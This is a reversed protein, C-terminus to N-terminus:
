LARQKRAKGAFSQLFDIDHSLSEITMGCVYGAATRWSENLRGDSGPGPGIRFCYVQVVEGLKGQEMWEWLRKYGRRFRQTFGVMFCVPM